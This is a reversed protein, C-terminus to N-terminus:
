SIGRARAMGPENPPVGSTGLVRDGRTPTALASRRSSLHGVGALAEAPIADLAYPAIRGHIAWTEVLQDAFESM